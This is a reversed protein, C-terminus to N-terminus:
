KVVKLALNVKFIKFYKYYDVTTEPTSKVSKIAELDGRTGYGEIMAEYTYTDM